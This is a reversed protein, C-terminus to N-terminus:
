YGVSPGIESMDIQGPDETFSMKFGQLGIAISFVADDYAGEMAGERGFRDYVFTSMEDFTEKARVQVQNLRCATRFENILFSRTSPGTKWGLRDSVRDGPTEMGKPRFYMNPYCLQKLRDLTSIGHNNIEPVMLAHNYYAGVIYCMEGLRSPAVHGRWFAVQEGTRRDLVTIVSRNGEEYGASVDAGLVYIGDAQPPRFVTLGNMAELTEGNVASVTLGDIKSVTWEFGDHMKVRDGIRLINPRQVNMTAADFVSAGTSMFMCCYERLFKNEDTYSRRIKEIEERSYHWWWGAMEKYYDNDACWIKHFADGVLNPSTELILKGHVAPTLASMQEEPKPWFPLESALVVGNFAYSRGLEETAPLVVIKSEMKPFSMEFKSNMGYEPRLAEPTFRWATKIKDLLESAAKATHAIIASTTGPHTIAHHYIYLVILTSSGLQRSKTLIIRDHVALLNLMHLQLPTLTMPRIGGERTKIKCFSELYFKPDMLMEASFSRAKIEDNTM